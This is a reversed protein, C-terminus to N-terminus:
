GSHQERMTVINEMELLDGAPVPFLHVQFCCMRFHLCIKNSYAGAASSATVLCLYNALVHSVCLLLRRSGETPWACVVSAPLHLM